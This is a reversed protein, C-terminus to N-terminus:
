QQRQQAATVTKPPEAAPKAAAKAEKKTKMKRERETQRHKKVVAAVQRRREVLNEVTLRHFNSSHIVTSKCLLGIEHSFEHDDTAAHANSAIEMDNSFHRPFKFLSWM